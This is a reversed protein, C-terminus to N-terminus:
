LIKLLKEDRTLSKFKQEEHVYIMLFGGGGAGNLKTSYIGSEIGNEWLKVYKEPILMQLSSFQLMSLAKITKEFVNHDGNLYSLVLNDNHEAVLQMKLLFEESQKRTELYAKVLPGTSRSIETDLLYLRKHIDLNVHDVLEINKNSHILIPQNFYSVLPDLGSSKGHFCNEIIALDNIIEKLSQTEQSKCFVDFIAASLAGSSGLGYGSPIDSEFYLGKSFQYEVEDFDLTSLYGEYHKKQLYNKLQSLSQRTPHNKDYKWAGSCRNFPIALGMSGHLITYEGFLLIKSLYSREFTM